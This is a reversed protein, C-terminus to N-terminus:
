YVPSCELTAGHGWPHGRSHCVAMRWGRGPEWLRKFSRDPNPLLRPDSWFEDDLLRQFLLIITPASVEPAVRWTPLSSCCSWAAGWHGDSGALQYLCHQIGLGYSVPPRSDLQDPRQSPLGYLGWVCGAPNGQFLGPGPCSWLWARKRSRAAIHHGPSQVLNM